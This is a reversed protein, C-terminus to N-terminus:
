IWRPVKQMYKTYEDGHRKILAPEEIRVIYIHLGAAFIFTYVLLMIHGFIIFLGLVILVHSIYIPNRTHNYLGRIVLKKPPEIVAPTGQGFLEFSVSAIFSVLLGLLVLAVGLLRFMGFVIVPLGFLKNLIVFMFPFVIWLLLLAGLAFLLSSQKM